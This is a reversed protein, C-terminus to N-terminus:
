IDLKIWLMDFKTGSRINWSICNLAGGKGVIKAVNVQEVPTDFIGKFLRLAQMDEDIGMAPLLILNNVQLFNIYVWSFNSKKPVDYHLEVIDFRPSLVNILKKRLKKDFDIYNNLLIKNGNIFRVMGDAHGYPECKDWPIIIIETEFLKELKNILAIKSYSPNEVFIKHTMIIANSCKIVNGGDIVINTEVTEIKLQKCCSTPNTIHDNDNQLYDPNYRYQIYKSDSIQIPMFDRVWYDKTLPVMGYKVQHRDLIKIISDFCQFRKTLASFYVFDTDIDTLLNTM